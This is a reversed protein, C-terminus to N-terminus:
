DLIIISYKYNLIKIHQLVNKIIHIYMITNAMIKHSHQIIVAIPYHSFQIHSLM